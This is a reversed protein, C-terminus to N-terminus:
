SGRRLLERRKVRIKQELENLLTADHQGFVDVLSSILLERSPQSGGLFGALLDGARRREWERQTLRPSYFFARQFKRRDLLDKKFLRDLTTMVTTYARRRTLRQSVHRVSSEGRAWIIRMVEAELRGLAFPEAPKNQGAMRNTFLHMM